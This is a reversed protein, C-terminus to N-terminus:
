VSKWATIVAYYGFRKVLRIDKFGATELMDIQASETLRRASDELTHAKWFELSDLDGLARFGEAQTDLWDAYIKDAVEKDDPMIQDGTIFYSDTNSSLADYINQCAQERKSPDINHLTCVSVALNGAYIPMKSADTADVLEFRLRLFSPCEKLNKLAIEIMEQSIDCAVINFEPNADLLLKTTYGTGCGIELVNTRDFGDIGNSVLALEIVKQHLPEYFPDVKLWNDYRSVINKFRDESM